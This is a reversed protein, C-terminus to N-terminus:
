DLDPVQSNRWRAVALTWLMLIPGFLPVLLLALWGRPIGARRLCRWCPFALLVVQVAFEIALETLGM